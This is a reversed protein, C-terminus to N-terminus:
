LSYTRYGLTGQGFNSGSSFSERLSHCAFHCRKRWLCLIHQYAPSVGIMINNELVKHGPSFFRAEPSFTNFDTTTNYWLSDSKATSWLVIYKGSAPDYIAEPGWAPVKPNGSLTCIRQNTWNVLDPSDWFGCTPKQGVSWAADTYMLVFAGDQKRLIAPDRIAKTSMSSTVVPKDNNLATWKLGDLSWCLHMRNEEVSDGIFYAM